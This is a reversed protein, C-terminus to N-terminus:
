RAPGPLLAPTTAIRDLVAHVAQEQEALRTAAFVARETRPTVDGGPQGPPTPGLGAASLSARVRTQSGAFVLRATRVACEHADHPQVPDATLPSPQLELWTRAANGVQSGGAAELMAAVAQVVAASREHQELHTASLADRARGCAVAVSPLADALEPLDSVTM